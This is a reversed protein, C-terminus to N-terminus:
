TPRRMAKRGRRPAMGNPGNPFIVRQDIVFEILWFALMVIPHGIAVVLLHLCHGAPALSGLAGTLLSTLVICGISVIWYLILLQAESM